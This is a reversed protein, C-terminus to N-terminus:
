DDLKVGTVWEVHERFESLDTMGASNVFLQWGQEETLGLFDRAVKSVTALQGSATRCDYGNVFRAGALVAAHGAMCMTTGCAYPILYGEADRQVGGRNIGYNIGYFSSQDWHEQDNEIFKMTLKIAEANVPM